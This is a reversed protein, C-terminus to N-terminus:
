EDNLREWLTKREPLPHKSRVQLAGSAMTVTEGKMVRISDMHGRYLLSGNSDFIGFGTVTGWHDTAQPFTVDSINSAFREGHIYELILFERLEVRHYGWGSLEGAPGFLGLYVPDAM